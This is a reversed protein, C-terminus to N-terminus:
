HQPTLLVTHGVGNLTAFGVIQGVDNISLAEIVHWGSNAPILKNIDYLIGAQYLFGAGNGSTDTSFGVIQENANIAVARSTGGFSGLDSIQGAYYFARDLGSTNSHCYGVVNGNINISQPLATDYGPLIKIDTVTGGTTWIMAHSHVGQPDFSSAAVQGHNNICASTDAAVTGDYPSSLSPIQTYSMAHWYFLYPLTLGNTDSRVLVDDQDNLCIGTSFTGTGATGLDTTHSLSLIAAHNFGPPPTPIDGALEGISNLSFVNTNADGIQHWVGQDLLFCGAQGQWMVQGINNLQTRSFLQDPAPPKLDSVAYQPPPPNTVAVPITVSKHSESESVTINASGIRLGNLSVSLGNGTISVVTPADSSWSWNSSPSFVSDNSSDRASASVDISAGLFMQSVSPVINITQITSEMNVVVNNPQGEKVTLPVTMSALAIQSLM